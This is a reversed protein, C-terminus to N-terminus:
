KSDDIPHKKPDTAVQLMLDFVVEAAMADEILEQQLGEKTASDNARTRLDSKFAFKASAPGVAFPTMSYYSKGMVRANFSPCGIGKKAEKSSASANSALEKTAMPHKIAM